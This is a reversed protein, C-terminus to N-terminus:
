LQYTHAAAPMYFANESLNWYPVSYVTDYPQVSDQILYTITITCMLDWLLFEAAM